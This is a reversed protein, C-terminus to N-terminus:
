NDGREIIPSIACKKVLKEMCDCCLNLKYKEGDFVTGYGFIGRLSFNEQKDWFDLKKGCKNCVTKSISITGRKM